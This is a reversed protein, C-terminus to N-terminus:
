QLPILREALLVVEQRGLRQELLVKALLVQVPLGARQQQALVAVQEFAV